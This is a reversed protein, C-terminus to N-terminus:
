HYKDSSRFFYSVPFIVEKGDDRRFLIEANPNGNYYDLLSLGYPEMARPNM